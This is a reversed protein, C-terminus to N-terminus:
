VCRESLCKALHRIRVSIGANLADANLLRAKQNAPDAFVAYSAAKAARRYDGADYDQEALHLVQEVSGVYDM